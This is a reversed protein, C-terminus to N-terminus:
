RNKLYELLLERAAVHHKLMFNLRDLSNKNANKFSAAEEHRIGLEPNYVIKYGKDICKYYLLVEECYLFPEPAFMKEEEEIYKSSVILCSGQLGVNTYEKRYDINDTGRVKSYLWRVPPVNSCLKNKIFHMKLRKEFKEPNEKYYRYESLEKELEGITIGELFIPNQHENNNPIYVDPGLLDFGTRAYIKEINREFDQQYFVVDNNTVIIFDVDYNERLYKYGRNNGKSFGENEASVLVHCQDYKVKLMEGSGDNSGNDVVVVVSSPDATNLISEICKETDIINKYHLIVYGFKM